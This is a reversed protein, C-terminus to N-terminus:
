ITSLGTAGWGGAALTTTEAHNFWIYSNLWSSSFQPDAVVPYTVGASGHEVVQVIAHGDLEYHMPVDVGSADRAWPAAITGAAVSGSVTQGTTPAAVMVKRLLSVSGDAEIVPVIDPSLPYTLRESQDRSAIM